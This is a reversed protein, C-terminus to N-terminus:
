LEIIKNEHENNEMDVYGFQNTVVQTGNIETDINRHSHGYIWFNINSDYITDFMEVCFANNISSNKHESSICLQTPVHHTVVVTKGETIDALANVLFYKSMSHLENWQHATIFNKGYKIHKFCAVGSIVAGINYPEIHSWLTTFIFNVGKYKISKNNYLKVNHRIDIDLSEKQILSLDTIDYYEHNGAIMFVQEFDESVRDFFPHSLGIKTLKTIDGALVLIDAMPKIRHELWYADNSDRELHLDSIYQIKLMKCIYPNNKM